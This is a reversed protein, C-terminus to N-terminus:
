YFFQPQARVLNKMAAKVENDDCACIASLERLDDWIADKYISGTLVNFVKWGKELEKHLQEHTLEYPSQDKCLYNM